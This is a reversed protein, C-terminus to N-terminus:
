RTNLHLPLSAHNQKLITHYHRGDFTKKFNEHSNIHKETIWVSLVKYCYRVINSLCNIKCTYNLVLSKELASLKFDFNHM